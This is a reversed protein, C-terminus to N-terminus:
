EAAAPESTSSHGNSLTWQVTQRTGGAAEYEDLTLGPRDLLLQMDRHIRTGARYPNSGAGRVLWLRTESGLRDSRRKPTPEEDGFVECAEQCRGGEDLSPDFVQAEDTALPTGKARLEAAYEFLQDVTRSGRFFTRRYTDKIPERRTAPDHRFEPGVHNYLQEMRRPFDYVEPTEAIITMHKRFSKKWCWKCNGQYGKLELRFPQLSWWQNIKPKTMPNPRVLPYVLRREKARASVRDFEDARIGIALDYTGIAWGISSAWAEIPKQKLHRTCDKFKQNPIGYKRIADEFPEGHRSASAFDVIRFGPGVRQNHRQVGEIWVTSFGFHEDCRRVFELTQENEEGTNAFCFRIEDYVASWNEKIWWGMYGSTEGGSFSVLLRKM